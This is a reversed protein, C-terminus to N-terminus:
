RNLAEAEARALETRARAVADRAERPVGFGDFQEDAAEADPLEQEARELEIRARQLRPLPTTPIKFLEESM